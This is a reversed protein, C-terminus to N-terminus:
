HAGSERRGELRKGPQLLWRGSYPLGRTWFGRARWKEQETGLGEAQGEPTQDWGVKATRRQGGRGQLFGQRWCPRLSGLGECVELNLGFAGCKSWSSRDRCSSSKQPPLDWADKGASNRRCVRVPIHTVVIVVGSDQGGSALPEELSSQCCFHGQNLVVPQFSM